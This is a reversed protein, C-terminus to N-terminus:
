IKISEDKGKIYDWLEKFIGTRQLTNVMVLIIPGLILGLFGIIQFGMFLAILTALPDLGISSSLIKPEMLQRQVVVVVYLVILGVGLNPNGGVLEFIIWPVFILGTGLYPLIDVMGIILAITIAYDVRLILLGILVIVTTISILTAQARIFGGLAKQLDSFINKGSEKAKRPLLKAFLAKFKDWDKSIFFTSLLSFVLVTAANPFWTLISPISELVNTIFSSVSDAIKTGVNEINTIITQQQNADLSNFYDTLLNILPIIQSALLHELYDITIQLHRPVVDALYTTGSIIETILLMLLGIFMSFFLLLTLFVALGRPLKAKRHLFNVFPNICFAIIMGIIFPYTYQSIYFFLITGLIVAGAVFFFRITRFLFIPNM